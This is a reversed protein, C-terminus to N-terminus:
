MLGLVAMMWSALSVCRRCAVVAMAARIAQMLLFQSSCDCCYQGHVRCFVAHQSVSGHEALSQLSIRGLALM